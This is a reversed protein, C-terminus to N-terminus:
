LMAWIFTEVSNGRLFFCFCQSEGNAGLSVFWGLTVPDLLPEAPAMKSKASSKWMGQFSRREVWWRCGVVRRSHGHAIPTEPQFRKAFFFFRFILPQFRLICGQFFPFMMKLVMMDKLTLTWSQPHLKQLKKSWNKIKQSKIHSNSYVIKSSITEWFRPLVKSQLSVVGIYGASISFSWDHFEYFTVEFCHRHQFHLKYAFFPTYQVQTHM